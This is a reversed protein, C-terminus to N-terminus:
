SRAPSRPRPPEVTRHETPVDRGAALGAIARLANWPSKPLAASPSAGPHQPAIRVALAGPRSVFRLPADLVVAEGDIGAPVRKGSRM